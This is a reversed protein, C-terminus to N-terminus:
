QAKLGTVEEGNHEENKRDNALDVCFSPKMSKEEKINNM